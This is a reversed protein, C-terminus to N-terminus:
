FSSSPHFLWRASLTRYDRELLHTKEVTFHLPIIWGKALHYVLHRIRVSITTTTTDMQSERWFHSTGSFQCFFHEGDRFIPAFFNTRGEPIFSPLFSPPSILSKKSSPRVPRQEGFGGDPGRCFFNEECTHILAGHPYVPDTRTSM